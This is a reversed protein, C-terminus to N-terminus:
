SLLRLTTVVADTLCKAAYTPRMAKELDVAETQICVAARFGAAYLEKRDAVRGAYAVVPVGLERARRMVEFPLKGMLTQADISGEGTFVLDAGELAESFGTKDLVFPAGPRIDAGLVAALGAAVGGGAGGGALERMDPCGKDALLRAFNELGAELTIVGRNGAGKQPGFVAAAGEPGTLTNAVDALVTFRVGSCNRRAAEIDLDTLELLFGGSIREFERNGRFCRAGLAQLIGWGGDVTASGGAGLIIHRCGRAIADRILIGTGFSSTAIPNRRPKEVLTLGSAAAMDIAAETGDASVMYEAKIHRGLPDLTDSVVTRGSGEFIARATGEGGDAVNFVCVESDPRVGKIAESVIRGAEASTLCGKFSDIAVVIKKM